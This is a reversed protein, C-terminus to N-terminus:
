LPRRNAFRAKFMAASDAAEAEVAAPTGIVLLGQDINGMIGHFEIRLDPLSWTAVIGDIRAGYRNTMPVMRSTTPQGYKAIIDSYILSQSMWGSTNVLLAGLAGDVLFAGMGNSAHAPQQSLPMAIGARNPQRGPKVCPERAPLYPDMYASVASPPRRECEPLALPKGFEFGYATPGATAAGASIALLLAIVTKMSGIM